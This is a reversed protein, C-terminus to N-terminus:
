KKTSSIIVSCIHGIIEMKIAPHLNKAKGVAVLAPQILKLQENTLQLDKPLLHDPSQYRLSCGSQVEAYMKTCELQIWSLVSESYTEPNAIGRSPRQCDASTTYDPEIPNGPRNRWVALTEHILRAARWLDGDVEKLSAPGLEWETRTSLPYGFECRLSETVQRPLIPVPFADLGQLTDPDAQERELIPHRLLEDLIATRPLTSFSLRKYRFGVKLPAIM